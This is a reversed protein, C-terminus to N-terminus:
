SGLRAYIVPSIVRKLETGDTEWPAWLIYEVIYFDKDNLLVQDGSRPPYPLSVTEVLERTGIDVIDYTLFTM